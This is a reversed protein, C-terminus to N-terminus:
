GLKQYEQLYYDLMLSKNRDVCGNFRTALSSKTIKTERKFNRVKYIVTGMFYYNEQNLVDWQWM